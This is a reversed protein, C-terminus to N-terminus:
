ALVVLLPTFELPLGAMNALLRDMFLDTLEHKRSSKTAADVLREGMWHVCRRSSQEKLVFAIERHRKRRARAQGARIM